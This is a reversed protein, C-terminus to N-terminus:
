YVPAEASDPAAIMAAANLFALREIRLMLDNIARLRPLSRPPQKRPHARLAPKLNIM